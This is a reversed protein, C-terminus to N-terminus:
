PQQEPAKTFLQHVLRIAADAMQRGANADLWRSLIPKEGYADREAQSPDPVYTSVRANALEVVFTRPSESWQKVELGIRVFIEAPFAVLGVEGIRLAQVPVAATKGDYPWAKGRRLLSQEFATPNEKKEIANLEEFFAKDRTYYPIALTETVADLTPDTMPEARELALIAAGALARGLQHAKAPGSTPLATPDHPRHNIDGCTGQLLLTVVNEGYVASITDGLLGPWDAAIFDAKGGGIVDPHMAFNVLLAILRGDKDVASLTQLAPDIPGAPGLTTKGESKKGFVESGDHLRFLRNFSYGTVEAAGARLTAPVKAAGAHAVADAIRRPLAATWTEDRPVAADARLEPGTHTHTACIMIHAAPIGTETEILQKAAKSVEETMSILDCSVLAIRVGASEIVVARAYLDDYVSKALREHFYGALQVGLPPTICERACGAQFSAPTEACATGWVMVFVGLVTACWTIRHFTSSLM